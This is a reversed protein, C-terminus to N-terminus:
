ILGSPLSTYVSCTGQTLPLQCCGVGKFYFASRIKGEVTSPTKTPTPGLFTIYQFLFSSTLLTSHKQAFYKGAIEVGKDGGQYFAILLM